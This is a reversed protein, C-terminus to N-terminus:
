SLKWAPILSHFKFFYSMPLHMITYIILTLLYNLFWETVTADLFLYLLLMGVPFPVLVILWMPSGLAETMAGLSVVILGILLAQWIALENDLLFSAIYYSFGNLSVALIFDFLYKM